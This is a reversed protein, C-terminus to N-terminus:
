LLRELPQLTLVKGGWTASKGKDVKVAAEGFACQVPNAGATCHCTEDCEVGQGLRHYHDQLRHRLDQLMALRRDVEGLKESLLTRLHTQASTCYGDNIYGLLEGIERLPLDLSRALAIFELRQIHEEAFLRYGASAYGAERRGPPPILGMKEYHRILSVGLGTRRAVQGIRLGGSTM